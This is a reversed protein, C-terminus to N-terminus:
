LRSAVLTSGKLGIKSDLVIFIPIANLLASMKGKRSFAELFGFERMSAALKPAIGGAIYVGGHALNILALNGAVAGYVKIFMELAQRALADHHVTAFEAVAAADDTDMAQELQRNVMGPQSERLFSYITVLGPGSLVHEISVHGVRAILHKLLAIQVEDTPAFDSHGTESPVVLYRDGAWISQCAGLGTGAGLTVRNGHVQPLGDQLTVCDKEALVETGYAVAEFDNILRVKEIHLEAALTREDIFWPLNTVKVRRGDADSEIPGAVGFCASDLGSVVNLPASAHFAHILSTFDSYRQSEFRQEHLLQFNGDQIRITQLWTKTGGVDGSLVKM